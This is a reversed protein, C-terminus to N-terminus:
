SSSELQKQLTQAEQLHKRVIPILEQSVKALSTKGAGSTSTTNPKVDTSSAAQM